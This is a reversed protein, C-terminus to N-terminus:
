FSIFAIGAGAMLFLFLFTLGEELVAGVDRIECGSQSAFVQPIVNFRMVLPAPTGM